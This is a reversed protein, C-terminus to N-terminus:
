NQETDDNDSPPPTENTYDTVIQELKRLRHEQDAIHTELVDIRQLQAQVLDVFEQTEQRPSGSSPKDENLDKMSVRTTEICVHNAYQQIATQASEVLPSEMSGEGTILWHISVEPLYKAMNILIMSNFKKLRGLSDNLTTRPLKLLEAFRTQNGKCKCDIVYKLRNRIANIDSSENLM